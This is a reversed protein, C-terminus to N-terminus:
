LNRNKLSSSGEFEMDLLDILLKKHRLLGKKNLLIKCIEAVQLSAVVAPTFAPNGLSQDITSGDWNNYIKQLSIDQPFITYVHGYWGAIAGHVLPINLTSCVEALELQTAINDFRM